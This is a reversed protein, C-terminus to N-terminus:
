QNLGTNLDLVENVFADASDIWSKVVKLSISRTSHKGQKLKRNRDAQHVIKHRREIMEFMLKYKDGLNEIRINIKGLWNSIENVGNFNLREHFYSDISENILDSVSKGDYKQLDGLFFREAKHNSSGDKNMLPIDNLTKTEFRKSNLLLFNRLFDEITARLLVTASRLIDSKTVDTRGQIKSSMNEYIDILNKVRKINLRHRESLSEHNLPENGANEESM